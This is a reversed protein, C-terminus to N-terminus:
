ECTQELKLICKSKVWQESASRLKIEDTRLPLFCTSIIIAFLTRIQNPSASIIAEVIKTDWHTDNELLNLEECVARYTPFITGNVTRLSEFSTLQRM